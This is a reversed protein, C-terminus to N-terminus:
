NVQFAGFLGSLDIVLEIFLFFRLGVLFYFLFLDRPMEQAYEPEVQVGEDYIELLEKQFYETTTFYLIFLNLFVYISGFIKVGMELPFCLWKSLPKM